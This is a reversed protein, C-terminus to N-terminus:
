VLRQRKEDPADETDGNASEPPTHYHDQRGEDPGIAEIGGQMVSQQGNGDQPPASYHLGPPSQYYMAAWHSHQFQQQQQGDDPSGPHGQRHQAAAAEGATVGASNPEGQGPPVMAYPAQPWHGQPAGPPGPPPPYPQHQQQMQFFYQQQRSKLANQHQQAAYNMNPQYYQPPPPQNPDMPHPPMQAMAVHYQQADVPMSGPFPAAESSDYEAMELWHISTSRCSVKALFTRSEAIENIDDGPDGADSAITDSGAASAEEAKVAKSEISPSESKGEGNTVEDGVKQSAGAVVTSPDAADLTSLLVYVSCWPLQRHKHRERCFSRTRNTRKCAACVPTKPDFPKTVCYPQWQVMRVTMPKDVFRGDEDLCSDDITICM